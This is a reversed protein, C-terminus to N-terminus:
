NNYKGMASIVEVMRNSFGWENDYWVALKVLNGAVVETSKADVIGSHPNGLIDSSVLEDETYEVIGSLKDLSIEKLFNNIEEKTVNQKLELNLDTISGDITPVRYAIGHFKGDLEPILKVVSKAAGTTTPVINFPAARGRRLKKHVADLIRQDGTVSHVTAFMGKEIGFKNNIENIIATISNTTCSGNSVIKQGVYDSDNVGRVFYFCDGKGPASILVKKAGAKSMHESAKEADTFFGTCEAVVDVDLERWPLNELERIATIKIKKDGIVMYEGEIEVDHDFKGHASDYKLFYKLSEPDSLDNIAVFEINPNDFGARFIMRGIRGFGNIAVRVKRGTSIENKVEDLLNNEAM